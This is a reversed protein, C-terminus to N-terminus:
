RDVAHLAITEEEVRGLATTVRNTLKYRLDETLPGKVWCTAFHRIKGGSEVTFTSPAPLGNSGNGIVVGEDASWESSVISDAGNVGGDSALWKTWELTYELESDTGHKFTKAILVSM